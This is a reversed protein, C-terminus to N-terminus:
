SCFDEHICSYCQWLWMNWISSALRQSCFMCLACHGHQMLQPLPSTRCPLLPDVPGGCQVQPPSANVWGHTDLSTWSVTLMASRDAVSPDPPNYPFLAKHMLSYKKNEWGECMKLWVRHPFPLWGWNLQLSLLALRQFDLQDSGYNFFNPHLSPLLTFTVTSYWSFIPKVSLTIKLPYWCIWFKM